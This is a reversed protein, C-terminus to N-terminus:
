INHQDETQAVPSLRIVQIRVILVSVLIVFLCEKTLIIIYFKEQNLFYGCGTLNFGIDQKKNKPM